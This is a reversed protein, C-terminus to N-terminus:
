LTELPIGIVCVLTRIAVVRGCDPCALPRAARGDDDELAIASWGACNACDTSAFNRDLRHLRTALTTRTLM